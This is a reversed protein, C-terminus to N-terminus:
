LSEVIGKDAIEKDDSIKCEKFIMIHDILIIMWFLKTAVFFVRSSV